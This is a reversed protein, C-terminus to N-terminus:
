INKLFNNLRNVKIKKWSTMNGRAWTAQRKAYQRTKISIKEIVEDKNIKKKIFDNIEDIGIAKSISKNKSIRLKLFKKVELIAGRNLMERTRFNIKKILEPRPYEICLKFFDSKKFNSKTNKHWEIVSKKTFLKVEYARISRQRDTYDIQNVILPDLKLLKKYFKEQGISKNLLRIKNRLKLPISPIEVLGDTLAKFYLGTGGVLIPIKKRKKIENIKKIVTKLWDGSSYVKNSKQFGYLHHKIKNLNKKLPRATLVKLERYIQMSDANIIEGHIKKALKVAFDSKGSATPGYILIIKSKLDM